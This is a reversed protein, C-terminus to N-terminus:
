WSWSWKESGQAAFNSFISSPSGTMTTFAEDKDIKPRSRALSSFSRMFLLRVSQLRASDHWIMDKKESFVELCSTRTRKLSHMRWIGEWGEQKAKKQLFSTSAASHTAYCSCRSCACLFVHMAYCPSSPHTTFAFLIHITYPSCRICICSFCARPIEVGGWRSELAWSMRNQHLNLACHEIIRVSLAFKRAKVRDSPVVFQKAETETKVVKCLKQEIHILWSYLKNM